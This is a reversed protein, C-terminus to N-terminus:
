VVAELLKPESASHDHGDHESKEADLRPIGILSGTSKASTPILECDCRWGGCELNSQGPLLMAKKWTRARHIQGSATKCTNCHQETKGLRWELMQNGQAALVGSNRIRNLGKQVWVDIRSLVADRKAVFEPTGKLPLVEKYVENALATYFSREAKIELDLDKREDEDIESPDSLNVGGEALGNIYANLFAQSIEDRGSIGFRQRDVKGGFADLLNNLLGARYARETQDYDKTGAYNQIASWVNALSGDSTTLLLRGYAVADPPLSKAEFPYDKGKREVLAKWTKLERYPADALFVIAKGGMPQKEDETASAAETPKTTSTPQKGLSSHDGGLEGGVQGPNGPAVRYYDKMVSSPVPINNVKYLQKLAPDPVLGLIEQATYYDLVGDALQKSVTTTRSELDQDLGRVRKFSPVIRWEPNYATAIQHTFVNAYREAQPVLWSLLWERKQDYFKVQTRGTSQRPEILELPVRLIRLCADRAEASLQPMGLKDFDQQLKLMEWRTPLVVTRGINAAGQHMRRLYETLQDKQDTGPVFGTGQAPQIVFSPMAMNRFFMLQTATIETETAAQAYAIMLSGNGGFDEFFDINHMYVAQEPSLYTLDDDLDSGWVPRIRFGRLGYGPDTDLQYFNNNIWQVGAPFRRNDLLKHLLVAGFCCWSVECREITDQMNYHLATQLAQGLPTPTEMLKGDPTALLFDVQRLAEARLEVAARFTVAMRWLHSIESNNVQPRLLAVEQNLYTKIAEGALFQEPMQRDVRTTARKAQRSPGQKRHQHKSM